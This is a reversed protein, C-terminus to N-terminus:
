LVLVTCGDAVGTITVQGQAKGLIAEVGRREAKLAEALVDHMKQGLSQLAEQLAELGSSNARDGAQVSERLGHAQERMAQELEERKVAEQSVVSDVKDSLQQGQLQRRAEAATLANRAREEAERLQCSFNPPRPPIRQYRLISQPYWRFRLLVMRPVATPFGAQMLPSTHSFFTTKMTPFKFLVYGTSYTPQAGCKIVKNVRTGRHSPLNSM